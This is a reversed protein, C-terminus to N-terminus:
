YNGGTGGKRNRTYGTSHWRTFPINFWGIFRGHDKNKWRRMMAESYQQVFTCVNAISRLVKVLIKEFKLMQSSFVRVVECCAPTFGWFTVLSFKQHTAPVQVRFRHSLPFQEVWQAVVCVSDGSLSYGAPSGGAVFCLYRYKPFLFAWRTQGTPLLYAFKIEALLM